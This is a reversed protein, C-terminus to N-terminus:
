KFLAVLLIRFLGLIRSYTLRGITVLWRAVICDFCAIRKVLTEECCVDAVVEGVRQGGAGQVEAAVAVEAVPGDVAGPQEEQALAAPGLLAIELALVHAHASRALVQPEEVLVAVANRFLLRAALAGIGRPQTDLAPLHAPQIPTGHQLPSDPPAHGDLISLHLRIERTPIPPIM